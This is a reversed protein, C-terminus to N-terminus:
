YPTSIEKAKRAEDSNKEILIKITEDCYKLWIDIPNHKNKNKM